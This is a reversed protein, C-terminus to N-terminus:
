VLAVATEGREFFWGNELDAWGVRRYERENQGTPAIIMAGAMWKKGDGEKHRATHDNWRMWRLCILTATLTQLTDELTDFLVVGDQNSHLTSLIYDEDNPEFTCPSPLQRKGSTIAKMHTTKRVHLKGLNGRIRLPHVGRIAARM